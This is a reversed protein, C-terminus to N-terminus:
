AMKGLVGRLNEVDCPCMSLILCRVVLGPLECVLSHNAGEEWRAVGHPERPVCGMLQRVLLAYQSGWSIPCRNTHRAAGKTCGQSACRQNRNKVRSLLKVLHGNLTCMARLPDTVPGAKTMPKTHGERVLVTAAPHRSSRTECRARGRDGRKCLHARAGPGRKHLVVKSVVHCM